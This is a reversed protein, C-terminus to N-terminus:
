CCYTFDLQRDLLESQGCLSLNKAPLFATAESVQLLEFYHLCHYVPILMLRPLVYRVAEKFGEATSKFPFVFLIVELSMSLVPSSLARLVRTM